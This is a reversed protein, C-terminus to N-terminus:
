ALMFAAIPGKDNYAGPGRILGDKIEARPRWEPRTAGRIMAETPIGTFTTDMHGNFMLSLGGGSGRIIGVANLRDPGVEQRITEIGNSRFWDLIFEAVEREHGTPSPIAILECDLQSLEKADIYRIFKDMELRKSM